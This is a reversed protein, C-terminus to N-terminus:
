SNDSFFRGVNSLMGSNFTEKSMRLLNGADGSGAKDMIGTLVAPIAGSVAKQMNNENEGLVNSANGIFDNGLLGRVSDFLNFSM